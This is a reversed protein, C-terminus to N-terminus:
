LVPASGLVHTPTRSTANRNETTDSCGNQAKMYQVATPISENPKVEVAMTEYGHERMYIPTEGLNTVIAYDRKRDFGNRKEKRKGRYHSM